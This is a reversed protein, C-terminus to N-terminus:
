SFLSNWSPDLYLWRQTSFWSTPTEPVHLLGHGRACILETGNWGLFNQSAQGVRVPNTLLRLCVPCRQRQDRLVWRFALSGGALSALLQIPAPNASSLSMLKLLGFFVVPLIFAIKASLIIWRSWRPGDGHSRSIAAPLFFCSFAVLTFSCRLALAFTFSAMSPLNSNLSAGLYAFDLSGCYV